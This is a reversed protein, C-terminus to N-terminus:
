RGFSFRGLPVSGTLLGILFLVAILGLVVMIVTKFPDPLPIQGIVWYILYFILAAIILYVLLSILDM